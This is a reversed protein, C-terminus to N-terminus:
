STSAVLIVAFSIWGTTSHFCAPYMLFNFFLAVLKHSVHLLQFRLNVFIDFCDELCSTKLFVYNGCNMDPDISINHEMSIFLLAFTSLSFSGTVGPNANIWSQVVPGQLRYVTTLPQIHNYFLCFGLSRTM